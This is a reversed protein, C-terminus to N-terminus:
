DRMFFGLWSYKTKEDIKNHKEKLETMRLNIESTDRVANELSDKYQAAFQEKMLPTFRQWEDIKRVLDTKRKYLDSYEEPKLLINHTVGYAMFGTMYIIIGGLLSAFYPLIKNVDREMPSIESKHQGIM